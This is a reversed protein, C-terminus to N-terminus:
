ESGGILDSPPPQKPPCESPWRRCGYSYLNDCRYHVRQFSKEVEDKYAGFADFNVYHKHMDIQLDHICKTLDNLKDYIHKATDSNKDSIKNMQSLIYSIVGMAILQIFGMISLLVGETSM